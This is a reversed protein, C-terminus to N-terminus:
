DATDLRGVVFTAPPVFRSPVGAEDWVRVTWFVREGSPLAKGGWVISLTEDSEVVGSDWRDAKGPELFRPASAALIQYKTQRLGRRTGAVADYRWSFRPARADIGVPDALWECQM